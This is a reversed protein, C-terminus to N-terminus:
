ARAGGNQPPPPTRATERSVWPANSCDYEEHGCIATCALCTAYHIAQEDTWGTAERFAALVTQEDM